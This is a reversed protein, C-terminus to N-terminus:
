RESGNPSGNSDLQKITAELESKLQAAKAKLQQLHEEPSIKIQDINIQESGDTKSDPNYFATPSIVTSTGYLTPFYIARIHPMGAQAYTGAGFFRLNLFYRYTGAAVSYFRSTTGPYGYASVSTPMEGPLRVVGLGPYTSQAAGVNNIGLWVETTTGTVHNINLWAGGTVEIYGAAPITIDVSDIAIITGTATNSIFSASQSNSIGPEDLIESSSISSDPLQVSADATQDMYFLASKSSGYISVHPNNTGNYNGDVEFGPTGIDRYISMFGGSGNFDPEFRQTMYESNNFLRIRGGYTVHEEISAMPTALGNQYVDIKGSSGTSGVILTDKLQTTGNVDLKKTPASTGIGVLGDMTAYFDYRANPWNYIGFNDNFMTGLSWRDAGGTTLVLYNRGSANPKDAWFGSTYASQVRVGAFDTGPKIDLGELARGYFNGPAAGISASINNLYYGNPDQLWPGLSYAASGLESRPSFTIPSSIGSGSVATVELWLSQYFIGLLPTVSGLLVSFTGQKVPISTQTEMWQSAGASLDNFLEFKIDYLGDPVPMGLPTTLLGQYSIKNPVYIPAAAITKPNSGSQQVTGSSQQSTVAVQAYVIGSLILCIVVMFLFLVKM